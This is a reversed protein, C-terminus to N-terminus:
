VIATWATGDWGYIASGAAGDERFYWVCPATPSHTPAGTGFDVFQALKNLLELLRRNIDEQDDGFNIGFQSM